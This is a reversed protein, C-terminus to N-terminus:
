LFGQLQVFPHPVLLVNKEVVNVAMFIWHHESCIDNFINDQCDHFRLRRGSTRCSLESCPSRWTRRWHSLSAMGVLRRRHLTLTQQDKIKWYIGLKGDRNDKKILLLILLILLILLNHLLYIWPRRRRVGGCIAWPSHGVAFRHRRCQIWDIPFFRFSVHSPWWPLINCVLCDYWMGNLGDFIFSFTLTCKLSFWILWSNNWVPNHISM